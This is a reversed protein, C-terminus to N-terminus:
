VPFALEEIVETITHLVDRLESNGIHSQDLEFSDLVNAM